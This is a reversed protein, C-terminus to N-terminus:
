AKEFVLEGKKSRCSIRDGEAFRGELLAKALRDQVKRRIVRKLPRAGFVPDYGESALLERSEGDLELELGKGALSERLARLQIDVIEVLQERSLRRFTVTEDIRNLFEPRFTRRMAEEMRRGLEDEDDLELVFQSGINSTMILVTNKFDVTRGKGDTLRGEDLVQLFVNFVDPHAKEIEDFLV